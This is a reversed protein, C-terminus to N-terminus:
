KRERPMAPNGLRGEELRTLWEDQAAYQLDTKLQDLYMFFFGIFALLWILITLWHRKLFTM